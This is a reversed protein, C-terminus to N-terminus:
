KPIPLPKDWDREWTLPVGSKELLAQCEYELLPIDRQRQISMRM